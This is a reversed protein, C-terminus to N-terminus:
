LVIALGLGVTARISERMSQDLPMRFLLSPRIRGRRLELTGTAMHFTREALTLDSETALLRGTVGITARIASGEYGVQVGYDAFLEPDDGSTGKSPVLVSPGLKAAILLGSPSLSRVEAGARATFVNPLFAEFQDPDTLTGVEYALGGASTEPESALPLRVGLYASVPRDARHFRAGLYPNGIRLSSEKIEGITFGARVMPVDAEIRLLKGAPTGASIFVVGSLFQPAADGKFFPKLFDARVVTGEPRDPWYQQAPLTVSWLLSVLVLAAAPHRLAKTSM